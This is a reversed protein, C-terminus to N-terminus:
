FQLGQVQRVYKPGSISFQLADELGVQVPLSIEWLDGTIRHGPLDETEWTKASFMNMTDFGPEQRPRLFGADTSLSLDNM